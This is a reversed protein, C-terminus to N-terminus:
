INPQIEWGRWKSEVIRIRELYAYAIIRYLINQVFLKRRVHMLFLMIVMTNEQIKLKLLWM